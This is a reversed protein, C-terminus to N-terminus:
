LRCPIMEFFWITVHHLSERRPKPNSIPNGCGYASTKGARLAKELLQRTVAELLPWEEAEPSLDERFQPERGFSREQEL